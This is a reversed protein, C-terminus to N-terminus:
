DQLRPTFYQYLETAQVDNALAYMVFTYLHEYVYLYRRCLMCDPCLASGPRLRRINVCEVEYPLHHYNDTANATPYLHIRKFQKYSLRCQKTQAVVMGM